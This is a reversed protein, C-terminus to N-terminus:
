DSEVVFDEMELEEQFHKAVSAGVVLPPNKEKKSLDVPKM